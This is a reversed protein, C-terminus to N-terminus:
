DSVQEKVDTESNGRWIYYYLWMYFFFGNYTYNGQRLLQLLIVVLAANSLVWLEGREDRSRWKFIYFKFIVFLMFIIGILGTESMIRLGMSNADSRNFEYIGGFEKVVSYRDYAIQHSGLGTGWLPNELFNETAITYNNYLVFSSGHVNFSNKEEGIFLEQLGDIRSSFENINQYLYTYLGIILPLVIFVYRAFGFNILFLLLTVFIGLYAVSSFTLFYSIIIIVYQWPKLFDQKGKMMMNYCAVFFAPAISIGYYSPESFVSNLRIGLLGGQIVGWKNLVWTYDYGFKFGIVYSLVQVLGIVAVIYAGKM